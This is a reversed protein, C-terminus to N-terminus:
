ARAIAGNFTWGQRLPRSRVAEGARLATGIPWPRTPRGAVCGLCPLMILGNSTTRFRATMPAPWLGSGDPCQHLHRDLFPVPIMDAGLSYSSTARFMAAFFPSFTGSVRPNLVDSRRGTAHDNLVQDPHTKRPTTTRPSPPPGARDLDHEDSAPRHLHDPPSQGPHRRQAVVPATSSTTSRM